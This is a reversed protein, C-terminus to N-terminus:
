DLIKNTPKGQGINKSPLTESEIVVNRISKATRMTNETGVDNGSAFNRHDRCFSGPAHIYKPLKQGYLIAEECVRVLECDQDEPVIGAVPNDFCSITHVGSLWDRLSPGQNSIADACLRKYPRSESVLSVADRSRKALKFNSQHSQLNKESLCQCTEESRCTEDSGVTVGASDNPTEPEREKLRRRVCSGNDSLPHRHEKWVDPGITFSKPAGHIWAVWIRLIDGYELFPVKSVVNRRTLRVCEHAFNIIFFPHASARIAPVLEPKEWNQINFLQFTPQGSENVQHVYLPETFSLPLLRLELSEQPFRMLYSERESLSCKQNKKSYQLIERLADRKPVLICKGDILLQKLDSRVSLRNLPCDLALSDRPLGWCFELSQIKKQAEKSGMGSRYAECWRITRLEWKRITSLKVSAMGDWDCLGQDRLGERRERAATRAEERLKAKAARAAELKAKQAKNAM